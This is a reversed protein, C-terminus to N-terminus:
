WASLNLDPGVRLEVEDINADRDRWRGLVGTKWTISGGDLVLNFAASMEDDNVVTPAVVFRNFEYNANDLWGNAPDNITYRPVGRGQDLIISIDDTGEYSFRAEVEDTVRERTQTYGVRYDVAGFSLANEGGLSVTFTDEAKTRWRVRRSFDGPD